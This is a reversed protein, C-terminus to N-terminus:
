ASAWWISQFFHKRIKKASRGLFIMVDAILGL